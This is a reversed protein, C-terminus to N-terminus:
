IGFTQKLYKRSIRSSELATPLETHDTEVIIWGSWSNRELMAFFGEFNVDGNGIETWVGRACAERYGLGLRRVAAVVDQRADKLHIAGVRDIYTDTMTIPDAGAFLLHGTDPGLKVLQPDTERMLQHIEHPAEIYTGVHPHYYLDIGFDNWLAAIKELIRVLQGFERSALSVPEGSEIQGALALRQPPSVFASVFIGDQGVVTSFEAQRRARAMIDPECDEDQLHDHFFGSAPQLSYKELIEVAEAATLDPQRDVNVAEFGAEFAERAREELSKFVLTDSVSLPTTDPNLALRVVANSM